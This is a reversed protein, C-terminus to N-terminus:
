SSKQKQNLVYEQLANTAEAYREKLENLTKIGAAWTDDRHWFKTDFCVYWSLMMGMACMLLAFTFLLAQNASLMCPQDRMIMFWAVLGIWGFTLSIIGVRSIFKM